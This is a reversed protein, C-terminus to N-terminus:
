YRANILLEIPLVNPLAGKGWYVCHVCNLYESTESYFRVVIRWKFVTLEEKKPMLSLVETM